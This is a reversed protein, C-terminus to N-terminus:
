NGEKKLFFDWESRISRALRGFFRDFWHRESVPRNRVTLSDKAWHTKNKQNDNGINKNQIIMLRYAINWQKLIILVPLM